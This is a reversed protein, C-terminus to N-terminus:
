NANLDIWSGFYRLSKRIKRDAEVSDFLSWGLIWCEWFKALRFGSATGHNM